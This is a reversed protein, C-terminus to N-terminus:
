YVALVVSNDVTLLILQFKKQGQCHGDLWQKLTAVYQQLLNLCGSSKKKRKGQLTNLRPLVFIRAIEFWLPMLALQDYM